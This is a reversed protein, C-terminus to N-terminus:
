FKKLVLVAGYTSFKGRGKVNLELWFKFHQAINRWVMHVYHLHISSWLKQGM